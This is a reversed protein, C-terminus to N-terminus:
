QLLDLALRLLVRITASISPVDVWEDCQHINAGRPGFQVTPIGLDAAFFNTDAVGALYGFEPPSGLESQYTRGFRRLFPEDPAVEWAPYYPPDIAFEFRAPSHLDEALARMEALVTEGTEGPVFHRNITFRAHEPVTIVYQENGSQLSLVCQTPKLRPHTGLPLEDLRAVLRAAEVAANIGEHPM